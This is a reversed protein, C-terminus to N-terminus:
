GTASVQRLSMRVLKADRVGSDPGEIATVGPDQWTWDRPVREPLGHGFVDYMGLHPMHVYGIHCGCTANTCPAPKLAAKWDPGYLNGLPTRIFHCRRMTGDGEVSFVTHGARCDRGLSPHNVNNLPFHPDLRTWADTEAPGYYGGIRKFANVWLYVTPPLSERLSRADHLHEKLGVVGVSYSVGVAHLERCREVFRERTTETPHYSCWLGLKKPDCRRVWSLGCSLNTQIAAKRVHRLNTLRVLAQQYWPRVLAEGWPTFLVSFEDGADAQAEVWDVFRDLAARDGDLEASTERRKAFPCYVCGYNCGSLPGRYLILYHM